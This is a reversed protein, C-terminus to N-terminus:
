GADRKKNKRKGRYYSRERLPLWRETDPTSTPDCNKPLKVAFLFSSTIVLVNRWWVAVVRKSSLTCVIAKEICLSTLFDSLKQTSFLGSHPMKM